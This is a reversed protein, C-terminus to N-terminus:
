SMTLEAPKVYGDNAFCEVTLQTGPNYYASYSTGVNTGNVAWYGNAVENLTLKPKITTAATVTVNETLVRTDGNNITTGGYTFSTVDYGTSASVNYKISSKNIGLLTSKTERVSDRSM